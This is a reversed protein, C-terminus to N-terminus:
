GDFDNAPRSFRTLSERKSTFAFEWLEIVFSAVFVPCVIAYFRIHQAWPRLLPM